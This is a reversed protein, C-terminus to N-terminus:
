FLIRLTGFFVGLYWFMDSVSLISVINLNQSRLCTQVYGMQVQDEYLNM